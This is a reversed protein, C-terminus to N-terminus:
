ERHGFPDGSLRSVGYVLNLEPRTRKQLAREQLHLNAQSPSTLDITRQNLLAKGEYPPDRFLQSRKAPPGSRLLHLFPNPTRGAGQTKQVPRTCPDIVGGTKKGEKKSLPRCPISHLQGTGYCRKLGKPM